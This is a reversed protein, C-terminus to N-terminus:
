RASTETATDSNRVANLFNRVRGIYEDWHEHITRAHKSGSAVWLEKYGQRKADYCQYVMRCPVFDDADGHIFLMPKTSKALQAVASSEKFSWGFRRQCVWDACDLVPHAPLNYDNELRYALQDWTSTYGCDEIFAKLYDPTPDGSLMMTTAGGMSLGHVIQEGEPWLKHATEIWHHIELRDLWGMRIHDGESLGHGFHEPVIVNRKLVEYHLYYYRMMVEANDTYGHLVLSHEQIRESDPHCVILGHLKVNNNGVIFTDRLLGNAQLSDHWQRLEPYRNYVYEKCLEVDRGTNEAPCLATNTFYYGIGISLILLLILVSLLITVSKRIM